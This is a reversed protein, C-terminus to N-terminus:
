PNPRLRIGALERALGRSALRLLPEVDGEIVLLADPAVGNVVQIERRGVRLTAATKGSRLGVSVTFPLDVLVLRVFANSLYAPVAQAVLHALLNADGAPSVSVPPLPPAIRNVARLVAGTALVPIALPVAIAAAALEAVSRLDPRGRALGRAVMGEVARGLANVVEGHAVTARVASVEGASLVDRLSAPDLPRGAEACGRVYALVADDVDGGDDGLLEQWAGHVWACSWSGDVETVAMIVRQRTRADIARAPGYSRVLGPATRVLEVLWPALPPM